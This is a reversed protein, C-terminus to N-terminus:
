NQEQRSPFAGRERTDGTESQPSRSEQAPCLFRFECHKCVFGPRPAFESARIDGAVEQITGRVQQLQAADRSASVCQNNQLNYYTLRVPVMDLVERAALAYVSLQLDKEAHTELKPKGTKYDIIEVEGPAIRNVQDMRGILDVGNDCHVTFRREQAVVHAPTALNAAYFAQLQEIGDHLYLEEQHRDEFGASTWERRFIEAVEEFSLRLGKRLAAIFQRITTHMVNGFTTAAAPGSRLGWVHSFLYKQPCKQYTEIASASLQLPEFVPPRYREAWRAVLSYIRPQAASEQFLPQEAPPGARAAPTAPLVPACQEVNQKAVHPSSLIDELFLSPRSRKHVVTTLVLRERARTIAVYFLRREEQIHFDGRPLEEKMLAEPFELVASRPAMPFGRHTLRLVYVHDFELGKAGHVTMLQIADGSEQELNIQGGAQAFYDLYEVFEGLRSTESKPQWERVFQALRRLYPQDASRISLPLALWEALGEFLDAANTGGSKTRLESVGSILANTAPLRGSFPLEGQPSQLEDWLSRKSKAARECLRVLDAPELGWAPAALVRACAINDAPNAILRLYALLDRVLPHDLISLNRIVFPIAREELATVLETRHGHIRYLVAFERWNLGAARLREIEAAIWRAEERSSAFEVIRVKEGESKHPVLEKKPVLPSHDIFSVVQAATRLIRATSRYNDVLPQVFRAAGAPDTRPVGAFRELFLTFSGFSAGRFRYIAQANDGVAVVNRHDGALQWLLEIQAINTDQFEDVLIYRYRSRLAAASAPDGRLLQVADLLQMGFTLLNRERLLRDSARYARAIERQEAIGDERIKREDEALGPKEHACKQALSEVYREYDDPTVLEDQCRSFFKVFDGLFQGPEALRRYRELALVALNRRLLIWHDVDDLTQLKPNRELLLTNCFAHFTGVFVAQGREGASGIVRHKMEGAARETFTLALISEGPLKPNAELLYRIRETIVRTKGTGAGAVVLLPGEGHRVAARQQENPEQGFRAAPPALEFLNGVGDDYGIQECRARSEVV